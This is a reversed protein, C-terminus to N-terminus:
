SSPRAPAQGRGAAAQRGALRVIAEIAADMRQVGAAREEVDDVLRDPDTSLRLNLWDYADAVRYWDKSELTEALLPRHEQWSELTRELRSQLREARRGRLATARSPDMKALLTESRLSWSPQLQLRVARLDNELLRASARAKLKETRRAMVYSGGAAIFGGVLVGVLGFIAQTV